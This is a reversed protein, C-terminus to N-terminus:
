SNLANNGVRAGDNPEALGAVSAICRYELKNARHESVPRAELAAIDERLRVDSLVRALLICRARAREAIGSGAQCRTELCHHTLQQGTIHVQVSVQARTLVVVLVFVGALQQLLCALLRLVTAMGATAVPEAHQEGGAVPQRLVRGPADGAISIAKKRSQKTKQRQKDCRM